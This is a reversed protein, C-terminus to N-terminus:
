GCDGDFGKPEKEIVRLKREVHETAEDLSIANVSMLDSTTVDQREVMEAPLWGGNVLAYYTPESHKDNEFLTVALRNYGSWQSAFELAEAVIAAHTAAQFRVPTINEYKDTLIGYFGNEKRGAARCAERSSWVAAGAAQSKRVENLNVVPAGDDYTAKEAKRPVYTAARVAADKSELLKRLAVTREANSPVSLAIQEALECFPKSVTQLDKPLHQYQFYQLIDLHSSM